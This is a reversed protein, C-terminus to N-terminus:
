GERVEGIIRIFNKYSKKGELRIGFIFLRYDDGGNGLFLV